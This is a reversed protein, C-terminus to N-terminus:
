LISFPRSHFSRPATPVVKVKIRNPLRDDLYESARDTVDLCTLSSSIWQSSLHDNM